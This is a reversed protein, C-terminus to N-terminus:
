NSNKKVWANVTKLLQSRVKLYDTPNAPPKNFDYKMKGSILEDNTCNYTLERLGFMRKNYPKTLLLVPTELALCPMAAHLRQTVVCKARGYMKLLKNAYAMREEHNNKNYMELPVGHTIPIVPCNAKKRILDLSKAPIDVAYIVNERKGKHTNNLTLTLCGSFYSPVGARNLMELTAYDRAGIPAHKKLYALGAGTLAESEFGPTIFISLILPDICSAPPWSITPAPMDHRYWGTKKTHMFWGNILGKVNKNSKFMSILERDFHCSEDPLLNRAAVAQIDDGINSSMYSVYGFQNWDGGFLGTFCITLLLVIWKSKINYNNM